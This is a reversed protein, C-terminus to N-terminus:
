GDYGLQRLARDDDSWGERVKVWLGLHVRKELMREIDARAESGVAKLMKGEAGIVIAKQGPKEVWIVADITTTAGEESFREIEVTLRYPVEQGLRRMLKERIIEGALFRESRDTVQDESFLPASEPLRRGVERELVDLQLGARASVPIVEAFSGRTGLEALYPLLDEKRQVRDVKNVAVIVPVHLDRLRDAVLADDKNWRLAEVVFVVLDVEQLAGLAARSMARDIARGKGGHLGPTDVYVAQAGGTTKIGIVRHRTTQPKSSTISVKQGVLHNLLTSKGVNPRGVIAV